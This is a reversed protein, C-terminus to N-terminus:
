GSLQAWVVKGCRGDPYYGWSKSYAAVLYLGHGGDVGPTVAPKPPEPSADWVEILLDRGDAWLWLTVTAQYVPWSAKIANTVLESVVLAANDILSDMNWM